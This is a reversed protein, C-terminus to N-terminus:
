GGTCNELTFKSVAEDTAVFADALLAFHGVGDDYCLMYTESKEPRKVACLAGFSCIALRGNGCFKAVHDCSVIKGSFGHRRFEEQLGRVVRDDLNPVSSPSEQAIVPTAWLLLSIAAAGVTRSSV